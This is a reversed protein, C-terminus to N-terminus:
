DVCVNGGAERLWCLGFPLAYLFAETGGGNIGQLASPSIGSSYSPRDQKRFHATVSSILVTAIVAIIFATEKDSKM